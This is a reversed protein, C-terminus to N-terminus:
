TRVETFQELVADVGQWTLVLGMDTLRVHKAGEPTMGGTRFWDPHNWAYDHVVGATSDAVTFFGRAGLMEAVEFVTFTEHERVLSDRLALNEVTLRENDITLRHNDAKLDDNDSVLKALTTQLAEQKNEVHSKPM